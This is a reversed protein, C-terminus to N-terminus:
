KKQSWDKRLSAEGVPRMFPLARVCSGLEGGHQRRTKGGVSLFRGKLQSGPTRLFSLRGQSGALVGLQEALAFAPLSIEENIWASQLPPGSARWAAMRGTKGNALLLLHRRSTHPRSKTNGFCLPLIWRKGWRASSESAPIVSLSLSLCLSLSLSLSLNLSSLSLSLSLSHIPNECSRSSVVNQMCMHGM